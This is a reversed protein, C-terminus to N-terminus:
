HDIVHAVLSVAAGAPSVSGGLGEVITDANGSISGVGGEEGDRVSSSAAVEDLALRLAAITTLDASRPAPELFRSNNSATVVTGGASAEVVRHWLASVVDGSGRKRAAIVDRSNGGLAGLSAGIVWSAGVGVILVETGGAVTDLSNCVDFGVDISVTGDGSGERDVLVEQGVRGTNVLVRGARRESTVSDLHDTPASLVTLVVPETDVRPVVSPAVLTGEFDEHAVTADVALHVGTEWSLSSFPNDEALYNM